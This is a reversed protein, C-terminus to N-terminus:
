SAVPESRARRRPRSRRNTSATSRPCGNGFYAGCVRPNNHAALWGRLKLTDQGWDINSDLLYLPGRAPGGAAVNFFALYNPYVAVSEVILGVLVPIIIALPVRKALVIALGAYLFPFIPLLHRVGIDIRSFLTTAAFLVVPVILVANARFEFRKRLLALTALGMFTLV